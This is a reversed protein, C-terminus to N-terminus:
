VAGEGIRVKISRPQAEKCNITGSLVLLHKLQTYEHAGTFSVEKLMDLFCVSYAWNFYQERKSLHM